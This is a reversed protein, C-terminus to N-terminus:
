RLSCESADKVTKIFQMQMSYANAAGSVLAFIPAWTSMVIFPTIVVLAWEPVQTMVGSDLHLILQSIGHVLLVWIIFFGRLIDLFLLRKAMLPRTIIQKNNYILM